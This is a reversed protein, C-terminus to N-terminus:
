GDFVGIDLHLGRIPLDICNRLLHPLPLLTRLNRQMDVIRLGDGADSEKHQIIAPTAKNESKFKNLKM